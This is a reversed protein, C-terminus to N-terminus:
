AGQGRKYAPLAWDRIWISDLVQQATPRGAPKWALMHKLLDLFAAQEEEGIIDMCLSQRPEQIWQDFRREWSWIDREKSLPKGAADFWKPRENWKNWWELPLAGQLHVKQATIDDQPAIIGDILSRHAFLEFILCGLSWIDSTLTLPTKPDFYSEPPRVVLPANSQFRSKDEPRFTVGFDSLLLKAEYLPLEDSTIGLWVPAFVHSPVGPGPESTGDIGVVPEPTLSNLSAPLRLLLNGLHLDGHAYGHSHVHAVASVLQVALSRAVELQFLRPESEEKAVALSCRAPTTVLCPHTGNPGDISFQDIVAPILSEDVSATVLRSLIDAEHKNADAMGVKVAVYESSEQDLALWATSFSGHGLKHVIRYRDDNCLTM